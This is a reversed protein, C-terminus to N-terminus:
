FKYIFKSIVMLAIHSCSPSIYSQLTCLWLSSDSGLNIHLEM